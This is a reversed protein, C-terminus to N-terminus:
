GKREGEDAVDGLWPNFFSEGAIDADNSTVLLREYVSDFYRTSEDVLLRWLRLTTEDGAQLTVVRARARDAFDSDSDFKRQAEQYFTTLDGVSLEQAAEAEGVDLLHEILMGFPTGWDGLHNQRIVSHGLFELVRVIADGIITSRLHGVHMEKAVNPHSYDVVVVEPHGVTPVGLRETDAATAVVQGALFGDDMTLNIFGPGAIEIASCVDVVDLHAVVADAVERPPRGLQKALGMAL